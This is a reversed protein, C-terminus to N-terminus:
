LGSIMFGLAFVIGVIAAFLSIILTARAYSRKNTNNNQIALYIIYILGVLPISSILMMWIFDVTSLNENKAPKEATCEATPKAAEAVPQTPNNAPNTQATYHYEAGEPATYSYTTETEPKEAAPEAVPEAVTTEAAPTETVVPECVVPECVVPECVVPESVAPEAPQEQTATANIYKEIEARSLGCGGCFNANENIARGCRPCFM